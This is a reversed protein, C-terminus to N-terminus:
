HLEKESFNSKGKEIQELLESALKYGKHPYDNNVFSNLSKSFIEMNMSGKLMPLEKEFALKATDYMERLQNGRTLMASFKDDYSIDKSPTSELVKEELPELVKSGADNEHIFAIHSVFFEGDDFMITLCEKKYPSNSISGYKEHIESILSNAESKSMGKMDVMWSESIFACSTVDNLMACLFQVVYSLTEKKDQDSMFAAIEFIIDVGNKRTLIIKPSIGECEYFIEESVKRVHEFYQKSEKKM